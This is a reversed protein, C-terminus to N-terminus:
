HDMFQFLVGFINITVLTKDSLWCTLATADIRTRSLGFGPCVINNTSINNAMSLDCINDTPLLYNPVEWENKVKM